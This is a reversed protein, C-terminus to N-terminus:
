KNVGWTIIAALGTVVGFFVVYWSSVWGLTGFLLSLILCLISSIIIAESEKGGQYMWTLSVIFVFMLFLKPLLQDTQNSAWTIYDVYSTVNTPYDYTM